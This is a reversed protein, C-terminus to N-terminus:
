AARIQNLFTNIQDRLNKAESDLVGAATMVSEAAAGTANAGTTVGSINTSVEKTGEAARQTNRSIERTAAGQEEVAAAITTAVESVKGITGGIAGIAVIADNAVRQIATIQQSIEETAKATQTALLKVESAVVAFGRGSEGARAAEITANLALLNTQAAISSILGVVEGIRSATDALGQVTRDTDKTQQVARGAIEAAQTAQRGIDAITTSLEESASAVGQVNLAAEGSAKEALKVQANTEVSISSMGSSTDKMQESASGLSSLSRSMEDEFESIYQVMTQQRDLTRSAQKRQQEEIQAKDVANTKFTSLAGALAGIEDKRDAFPTDVLLNGGALDLMADRIRSLPNIVRRRVELIAAATLVLAGALLVLQLILDRMAEARRESAQREAAELAREALNVATALRGVGYNVWETLNMEPKEGKLPANFLRDRLAMYSSEFYGQKTQAIAQSIETPQRTKAVLSEIAAWAAEINGLLRAYREQDAPTPRTDELSRSVLVTADGGFNRLLWAMQKLALLQDVISDAHSALAGLETSLADLRALLASSEDTFRKAYDGGREGKPKRVAEFSRDELDRFAAIQAALQPAPNPAGPFAISPLLELVSNMANRETERVKALYQGLEREIAPDGELNRGMIARVTRLNHMAKFTSGSAQAVLTLRDASRVEALSTWATLLLAVVVAAAMISIIASLFIKITLHTPM